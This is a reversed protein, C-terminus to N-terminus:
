PAGRRPSRRAALDKNVFARAEADDQLKPATPDVHGKNCSALTDATRRMAGPLWRDQWEAAAAATARPNRYANAWTVHLATLEDVVSTHRYWCPRLKRFYEPNRAALDDRVWTLLTEWAEKAAQEDLDPWWRARPRREKEGEALAEIADALEAFHGKVTSFEGDIGQVIEDVRASLKSLEASLARVTPDVDSM